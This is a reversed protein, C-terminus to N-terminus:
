PHVDFFYEPFIHPLSSLLGRSRTCQTNGSPLSMHYKKRSVQLVYMHYKFKPCANGPAPALGQAARPSSSPAFVFGFRVAYMHERRCATALGRGRELLERAVEFCM